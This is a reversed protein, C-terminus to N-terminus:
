WRKPKGGRGKRVPGHQVRVPKADAETHYCASELESFISRFNEVHGITGVRITDPDVAVVDVGKRKLEELLRSKGARRPWLVFTKM